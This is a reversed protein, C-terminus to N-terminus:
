LAHRTQNQFSWIVRLTCIPTQGHLITRNTGNCSFNSLYAADNINADRVFFAETGLAGLDGVVFPVRGPAEKALKVDMGLAYSEWIEFALHSVSGIPGQFCKDNPDISNCDALQM